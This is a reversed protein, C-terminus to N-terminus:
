EFTNYETHKNNLLKILSKLVDISWPGVNPWTYFSYISRDLCSNYKTDPNVNLSHKYEEM